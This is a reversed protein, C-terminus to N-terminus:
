LAYHTKLQIENSYEGLFLNSTIHSCYKEAEVKNQVNVDCPNKEEAVDSGCSEKTKWKNAFSVPNQEIDGEPTLFDDKQNGNFTGCLGKLLCHLINVFTVMMIFCKYLTLSSCSMIDLVCLKAGNDPSTESICCKKLTNKSTITKEWIESIINTNYKSLTM